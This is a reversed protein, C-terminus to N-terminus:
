GASEKDKMTQRVNRLVLDMEALAETRIDEGQLGYKTRLEASYKHCLKLTTTVTM